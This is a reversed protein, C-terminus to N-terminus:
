NGASTAASDAVPAVEFQLETGVGMHINKGSASVTGSSAEAFDSTLGYGHASSPEQDIKLAGQPPPVLDTGEPWVGVITSKIAIQKGDALRAQDFTLVVKAIGKNESPQVADIHGILLTHRPLETGALRVSDTLKATVADGQKATKTDLTSQLETNAVALESSSTMSNQPTNEAAAVLTLALATTAIGLYKGLYKMTGQMDIFVGQLFNTRGSL